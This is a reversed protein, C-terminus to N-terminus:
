PRDASPSIITHTSIAPSYMRALQKGRLYIMHSTLGAANRSGADYRRPIVDFVADPDGRSQITRPGKPGFDLCCPVRPKRVVDRLKTMPFPPLFSPVLSLRLYGDIISRRARVACARINDM